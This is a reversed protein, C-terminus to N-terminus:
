AWAVCLSADDSCSSTEVADDQVPTDERECARLLALGCVAVALFALVALMRGRLAPRVGAEERLAETERSAPAPAAPASAQEVLNAFSTPPSEIEPPSPPAPPSVSERGIPAAEALARRERELLTLGGAKGSRVRKTAKHWKGARKMDKGGHKHGGSKRGQKKNQAAM